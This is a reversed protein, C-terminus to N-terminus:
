VTEANLPCSASGSGLDPASSAIFFARTVMRSHRLQVGGVESECCRKEPHKSVRPEGAEARLVARTWARRNCESGLRGRRSDREVGRPGRRQGKGSARWGPARAGRGEFLGEFGPVGARGRGRGARARGRGERVREAGGGRPGRPRVRAACRQGGRGGRRSRAPPASASALPDRRPGASSSHRRRRRSVSPAWRGPLGGSPVSSATM